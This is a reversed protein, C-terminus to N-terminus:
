AQRYGYVIATGTCTGTSCNIRFGDYSTTNKVVATNREQYAYQYSTDAFWSTYDASFPNFIDLVAGAGGGAAATTIYGIYGYAIPTGATGGAGVTAGQVYLRQTEYTNTTLPTSGSLMQGRLQIDVTSPVLGNLVIRYAAYSSSFCSTIDTTGTSMSVSKVYVLGSNALYTNTDSATLTEGVSFTKVAM